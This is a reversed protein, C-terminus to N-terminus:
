KGPIGEQTIVLENFAPIMLTLLILGWLNEPALPLGIASLVIGLHIPNRTFSYVGSTVIATTPEHPRPSTNALSLRASRQRGPRISGGANAM